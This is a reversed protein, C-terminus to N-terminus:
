TYNSITWLEPQYGECHTEFHGILVWQLNTSGGGLVPFDRCPQFPTKLKEKGEPTESGGISVKNRKM